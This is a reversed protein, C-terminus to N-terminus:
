SPVGDDLVPAIAHPFPIVISWSPVYIRIDREARLETSPVSATQAFVSSGALDWVGIGWPFPTGQAITCAFLNANTRMPAEFSIRVFPIVELRYGNGHLLRGHANLFGVQLRMVDPPPEEVRISTPFCPLVAVVPVAATQVLFDRRNM